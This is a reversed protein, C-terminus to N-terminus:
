LWYMWERRFYIRSFYNFNFVQINMIERHKNEILEYYMEFGGLCFRHHLNLSTLDLGPGHDFLLM